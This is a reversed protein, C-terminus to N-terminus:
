ARAENEPIQKLREPDSVDHHVFLGCWCRKMSDFHKRHFPICPCVTKLDQDRDGSLIKCPCFPMGHAAENRAVQELLFEAEQVDPTFKYGLVGALPDFVVRLAKRRAEFEPDGDWDDSTFHKGGEGEPLELVRALWDPDFGVRVQDGVQVVPVARSGSVQYAKEIQQKQNEGSMRDLDAYDFPVKHKRLYEKLRRCSQCYYRTYLFVKIVPQKGRAPDM